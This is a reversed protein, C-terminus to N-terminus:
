TGTYHKHVADLVEYMGSIADSTWSSEEDNEQDPNDFFTCLLIALNDGSMMPTSIGGLRERKGLNEGRLRKLEEMVEAHDQCVQRYQREFIEANKEAWRCREGLAAIDSELDVIVNGRRDMEAEMEPITARRVHSIIAM